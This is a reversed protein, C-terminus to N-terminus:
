AVEVDKNTVQGVFDVIFHEKLGERGKARHRFSADHPVHLCAPRTSVAENGEAITSVGLTSQAGHVSFPETRTGNAAVPRILLALRRDRLLLSHSRHAHGRGSGETVVVERSMTNLAIIHNNRLCGLPLCGAIDAIKGRVSGLRVKNGKELVKAVDSLSAELRVTTKSENFHVSVLIGGHGDALEIAVVDVASRQLAAYTSVTGKKQKYQKSTSRTPCLGGVWPGTQLSSAQLGSDLKREPAQRM